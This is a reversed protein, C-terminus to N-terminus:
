LVEIMHLLDKLAGSCMEGELVQILNSYAQVHVM